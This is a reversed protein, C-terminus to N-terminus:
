LYLRACKAYHVHGTAAFLNLMKSVTQLHLCLNGTREARIFDKLIQIYHLYNIWLTATRSKEQLDTKLTELLEELLQLEASSVTADIGTVYDDEVAELLSIIKNVEESSLKRLRNNDRLLLKYWEDRGRTTGDEETEGM